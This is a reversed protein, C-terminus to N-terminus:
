ILKFASPNGRKLTLCGEFGALCIVIVNKISWAIQISAKSIVHGGASVQGDPVKRKKMCRKRFIKKIEKFFFKQLCL